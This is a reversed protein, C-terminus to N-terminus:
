EVTLFDELSTLDFSRSVPITNEFSKLKLKLSQSKGSVKEVYDANIIFSKHIRFFNSADLRQLINEIKKLTIRDMKKDVKDETLYHIFVYNDSSEFCLIADLNIKISLKGVNNKIIFHKPENVEKNVKLNPQTDQIITSKTKNKLLLFLIIISTILSCLFTGMVLLFSSFDNNSFFIISFLGTLLGVTILELFISTENKDRLIVSGILKLIFTCSFVFAFFYIPNSILFLPGFIILLITILSSNLLALVFKNGLIKM